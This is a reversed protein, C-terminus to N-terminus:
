RVQEAGGPDNLRAAVRRIAEAYPEDQQRVGPPLEGYPRLSRHSDDQRAMWAAWAAHVDSGEVRPGKVVALVAYFLFLLDVDGKPLLSEPTERRIQEAIDRIYSL